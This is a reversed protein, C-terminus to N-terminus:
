NDHERMGLLLYVAHWMRWLDPLEESLFQWSLVHGLSFDVHGLLSNILYLQAQDPPAAEALAISEPYPILRDDRGHLLILQAKLGALDRNRPSLAAIDERLGAPLEAALAPYRLPDLNTLLDHVVKGQRGLQAALDSLDATRDSQRREIMAKLLERDRPEKLHPMASYAFVLKGYDDPVLHHWQGEYEYYGTTFFRVARGLDYYGGVGVIFRVHERVGEELAALLSPGVAYSFAGIGTHGEPVLDTRRSLYAIADAIERIDASGIELRRFGSLEPTLVAFRARALTEALAVLRPEDKGQPVAGPVLVIGAAPTAQGPLYLDGTYKRSGVEYNVQVRQPAPTVEKLRSPAAGAAMDALVLLSEHGRLPACGALLALIAVLKLRMLPVFYSRWGDFNTLRPNGPM